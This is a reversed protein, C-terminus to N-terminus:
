RWGALYPDLTKPELGRMAISMVSDGYEALTMTATTPSIGGAALERINNIWNLAGAETEFAESKSSRKKTAPDVWRVRARYSKPRDPRYEVDASISVGLPLNASTSVSGERSRDAEYSALDGCRERQLDDGEVVPPRLTSGTAPEVHAMKPDLLTSASCRPWSM